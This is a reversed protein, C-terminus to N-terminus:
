THSASKRFYISHEVLYDFFPTNDYENGGDSHFYKITTHFINEVLKKFSLFIKFVASKTKM